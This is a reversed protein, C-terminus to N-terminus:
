NFKLKKDGVGFEFLVESFAKQHQKVSDTLTGDIDFVM